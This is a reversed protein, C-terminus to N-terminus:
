AAEIAVRRSAYRRRGRGFSTPRDPLVHAFMEGQGATRHIPRGSGDALADAAREVDLVEADLSGVPFSSRGLYLPRAPRRLATAISEVLGAEGALAVTFGGDQLHAALKQMTEADPHLWDSTWTRTQYEVAVIGPRDVRVAFDLGALDDIPDERRRGLASAVMGVVGSLTPVPETGPREVTRDVGWSQRPAGVEFIVAAM